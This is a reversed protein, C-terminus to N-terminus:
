QTYIIEKEKTDYIHAWAYEWTDRYSEQKHQKKIKEVGEEKTNFSGILDNVGGSPYYVSGYFVLYREM